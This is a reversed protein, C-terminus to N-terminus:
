VREVTELGIVASLITCPRPAQAQLCIRSDPNWDGMFEFTDEDYAEWVTNAPTVAGREVLPLNDLDNFNPGYQLGQYHTNALVLGLHDVSKVMNIATGAQAAYALKASQFQATYPLGVAGQSVAVPLTIEGDVDLSSITIQLGSIFGQGLVDNVQYGTGYNTIQYKYVAGSANTYLNATAGTGSGGSLPEDIYAANASGSGGNTLTTEFTGSNIQAVNFPGDYAIGDAWAVVNQGILSKLGTITATPSGNNFIVHSDVNKNVAGGQCESELAWRELYRVTENNITRRVAYYVKDEIFGPMIFIDEVFGNTMEVLVFAKLKEIPDYVCVAVNGNALLCHIRTDIKRQVALRVIGASIIEPSLISLDESSYDVPTYNGQYSMQILRVGAVNGNDPDGRQVFIGNTDIQVGAVRASGRTSPSKINNDTPTLAENLYSSTVSFEKMEGGMLLHQLALAWCINEVPGSGISRLIPGSDGTVTDDFSQFADSVSGDINDNGFFWLRGEYFCDATPYGDILSWQGQAWLSTTSSTGGTASGGTLTAGSPTAASAALTYANGATGATKYTIYLITPSASYSAVNLSSNGSANLDSALQALTAVLSGQINTEAGSAGSTVFKWAVGNLTVTDNNSPNVSFTVYGTAEVNGAGVAGFAKLVEVNVQKNSVYGTVRCIGTIGGSSFQMAVMASGSTYSSEFNFRYYIIQNDLGDNYTTNQNSTYNAVPTWTGPAGVSQELYITGVWTGTIQFAFQRTSGVGSIEIYNTAQNNGGITDNTNQSTSTLRFLCGVHDPKFYPISSNLTTDGTLAGAYMTTSLDTNILNFPGDNARYTAIGWSQPNGIRMIKYQQYGACAVYVEDESQDSRVNSLDALLWPVPITMAGAAEVNVSSVWSAYTTNATLQIYFTGTPTFALSYIGPALLVENIYSDDGLATGVRLTVYGKSIVIRLAHQVGSDGADLAVAQSRIARSGGETGTLSMYPGAAWQSLAGSEDSSVWNNLNSTFNGNTVTTAVTPRTIIAEGVRVRMLGNTLEIVATDTLAKIFPVHVAQNNDYIGDVYQTGPRLMMSGLERLMWNTQIEASLAQVKLDTRSLALPSIVGRNFAYLLANAQGM